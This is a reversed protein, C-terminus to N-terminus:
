QTSPPHRRPESQLTKMIRAKPTKKRVSKSRHAKPSTMLAADIAADIAMDEAHVARVVARVCM